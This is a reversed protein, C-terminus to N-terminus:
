ATWRLLLASQFCSRLAVSGCAHPLLQRFSPGPTTPPKYLALCTTQIAELSSVWTYNLDDQNARKQKGALPALVLHLLFRPGLRPPAVALQQSESAVAEKSRPADAGGLESERQWNQKLAIFSGETQKAQRGRRKCAQCTSALRLGAKQCTRIGSWAHESTASHLRGCGTTSEGMLVAQGTDGWAQFGELTPTRPYCAWRRVRAASLNCQYIVTHGAGVRMQM